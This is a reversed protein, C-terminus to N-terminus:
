LERTVIEMDRADSWLEHKPDADYMAKAKDYIPTLCHLCMKRGDVMVYPEDTSIEIQCVDCAKKEYNGVKLRGAILRCKQSKYTKKIINATYNGEAKVIELKGLIPTILSMDYINKVKWNEPNHHWGCPTLAFETKAFEKLDKIAQTAEKKTKFVFESTVDGQDRKMKPKPKYFDTYVIKTEENRSYVHNYSSHTYGSYHGRGKVFLFYM